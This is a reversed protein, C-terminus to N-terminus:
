RTELEVVSDWVGNNSQRVFIYVWFLDFNWFVINGEQLTIKWNALQIPWMKCLSQRNFCTISSFVLRSSSSFSTRLQQIVQHFFSSVPISPFLVLDCVTFLESQFFIQDQLSLSYLIFSKRRLVRCSWYGGILRPLFISLVFRIHFRVDNSECWRKM